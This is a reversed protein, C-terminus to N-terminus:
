GERESMREGGRKSEREGERWRAKARLTTYHPATPAAHHLTTCHPATHHM